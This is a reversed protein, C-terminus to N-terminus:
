ARADSARDLAHGENGERAPPRKGRSGDREKAKKLWERAKDAVAQARGHPDDRELARLTQELVSRNQIHAFFEELSGIGPEIRLVTLVQALADKAVMLMTSADDNKSLRLVSGHAIANRREYLAWLELPRRFVANEGSATAALAYRLGIIADKKSTEKPGCFLSELARWLDLVKDDPEERTVSSGIWHVCRRIALAIDPPLTGDFAVGILQSQACVAELLEGSVGLEIRLSEWRAGRFRSVDGSIQEARLNPGRRQLLQEHPIFTGMAMASRFAHLATDISHRAREIAKDRTAACVAVRAFAGGELRADFPALPDGKPRRWRESELGDYRCFEVGAITFPESAVLHEIEWEVSWQEQAKAHAQAFDRALNELSTEDLSDRGLWVECVLRWLPRLLDQQKLHEFEGDIWEDFIRYLAEAREGTLWLTSPLKGDGRRLDIPILNFYPPTASESQSIPERGPEEKIIRLLDAVLDVTKSPRSMAQLETTAEVSNPEISKRIYDGKGADGVFAIEWFTRTNRPDHGFLYGRHTPTVIAGHQAAQAMADARGNALLAEDSASLERRSGFVFCVEPQPTTDALSFGTLPLYEGFNIEGQDPRGILVHLGIAAGPGPDPIWHV